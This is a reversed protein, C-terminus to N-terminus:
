VQDLPESGPGRVRTFSYNDAYPRPRFRKPKPERVTVEVGRQRAYALAEDRSDFFLRLQQTTDASSTWGMLPDVSRSATQDFELVWERTNRLGSQTATKSPRYVIGKM